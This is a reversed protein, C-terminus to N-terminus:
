YRVPTSYRPDRHWEWYTALLRATVPGPEGTGIPRGDVRTVPLV